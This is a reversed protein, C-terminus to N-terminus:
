AVIRLADVINQRAASRAPGIGSLVGIIVAVILSEGLVTAPMRIANLRGLAAMGVVTMKLVVYAVGCGLLGGAAGILVSEALLFSLILNSGFGMSRMVAIEARRERISMAATNAAVLGITVVVVVGLIEALRFITRFTSIFSGIFSAESESQTAAASNALTEDLAAIVIPISETRDVKVWFNNVWGTRGIAEDLYDRRFIM